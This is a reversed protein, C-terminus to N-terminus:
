DGVGIPTLRKPHVASEYRRASASAIQLPAVGAQRLSSPRDCALRDRPPTLRVADRGNVLGALIPGILCERSALSAFKM